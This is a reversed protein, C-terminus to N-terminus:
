ERPTFRSKHCFEQSLNAPAGTLELACFLGEAPPPWGLPKHQFTARSFSRLWRAALSRMEDTRYRVHLDAIGTRNSRLSLDRGTEPLRGGASCALALRATSSGSLFRRDPQRPREPHHSPRSQDDMPRRFDEYATLRPPSKSWSQPKNSVADARTRSWMTARDPIPSLFWRRRPTLPADATESLKGLLHFPRGRGRRAKRVHPSARCAVAGCQATRHAQVNSNLV